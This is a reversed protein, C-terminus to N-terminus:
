SSEHTCLTTQSNSEVMGRRLQAARGGHQRRRAGGGVAKAKGAALSKLAGGAKRKSAAAVRPDVPPRFPGKPGTASNAAELAAFYEDVMEFYWEKDFTGRFFNCSFNGELLVMGHSDTLAVDWGVLPVGPCMKTHADEVLKRIEAMRPINTGSIPRGTDPHNTINHQSLWQANLVKDAGLRYWHANTTGKLVMGTEIETNFLISEHDTIAGERGARFVCSLARVEKDNDSVGEGKGEAKGEVGERAGTQERLPAGEERAGAQERLPALGLKSATVIRLTSLPADEPLLSSVFASNAMKEQIIWDGGHTASSFAQFGLGGEENRHKCIIAPFKLYPTVPVDMDEARELFTLKDELTYGEDGSVRAHLTALRCNLRWFSFWDQPSLLQERFAKAAAEAFAPATRGSDDEGGDSLVIGKWIGAVLAIAPYAVFLFPWVLARVHSLYSLPLGTGPIAVNRLNKVM